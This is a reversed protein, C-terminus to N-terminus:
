IGNHFSIFFTKLVSNMLIHARPRTWKLPQEMFEHLSIVTLTRANISHQASSFHKSSLDIFLRYIGIWDTM